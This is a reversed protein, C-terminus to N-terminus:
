KKLGAMIQEFEKIGYPSKKEKALILGAKAVEMVEGARGLKLLLNAKVRYDWWVKEERLELAKNIWMLGREHNKGSEFEYNAASYYDGSNPGALRTEIISEMMQQTTLEIPINVKTKEWRIALDFKYNDFNDIGITLNEVHSNIAKPKTKLKAIIKKTDMLEPVDWNDVDSYLIFEWEKESPKTIISYKGKPVKHGGILVNESFEITTNRNAGTRWYEDFKVLEGFIKRGRASPRSYVVEIQTKGIEQEIKQLPSLKLRGIQANAEGIIIITSLIIMLYIKHMDKKM